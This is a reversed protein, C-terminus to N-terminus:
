RREAKMMRGTIPDRKLPYVARTAIPVDDATRFLEWRRGVAEQQEKDRRKIEEKALADLAWERIPYENWPLITRHNKIPVPTTIFQGRFGVTLERLGRGIVMSVKPDKCKNM